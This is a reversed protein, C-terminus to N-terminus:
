GKRSKRSKKRRKKVENDHTPEKYEFLGYTLICLADLAHEDKILREPVTNWINLMNQYKQDKLSGYVKTWTQPSIEVIDYGLTAFIGELIGCAKGFAFTSSVGQRPMAHVKEIFLRAGSDAIPILEKILYPDLVKKVKKGVKIKKTPLPHAQLEGNQFLVLAGNIGPDVGAFM